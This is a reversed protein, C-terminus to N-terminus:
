GVSDDERNTVLMSVSVLNAATKTYDTTSPQFSNLYLTFVPENNTFRHFTKSRKKPSFETHVLVCRIGCVNLVFQFSQLNFKSGFQSPQRSQCCCVLDVRPSWYRWKVRGGDSFLLKKDQYSPDSDPKFRLKWVSQLELQILTNSENVARHTHWCPPHSSPWRWRWWSRWRGPWRGLTLTETGLAPWM